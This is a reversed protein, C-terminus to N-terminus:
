LTSVKYIYSARDAVCLRVRAASREKGNVIHLKKSGVLPGCNNAPITFSRIVGGYVTM